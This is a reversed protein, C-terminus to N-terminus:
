PEDAGIEKLFKLRAERLKEIWGSTNDPDICAQMREYTKDNIMLPNPGDGLILIM